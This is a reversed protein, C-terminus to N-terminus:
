NFSSLTSPVYYATCLTDVATIVTVTMSSWLIAKSLIVRSRNALNKTAGKGKLLECGSIVSM